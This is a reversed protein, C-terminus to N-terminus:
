FRDSSSTSSEAIGTGHRGPHQWAGSRIIISQVVSGTLWVWNVELLLVWGSHWIKTRDPPDKHDRTGVWHQTIKQLNSDYGEARCENSNQGKKAAPRRLSNGSERGEAEEVRDNKQEAKGLKFISKM